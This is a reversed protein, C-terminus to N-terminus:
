QMEKLTMEAELITMGENHTYVPASEWHEILRFSHTTTMHWDPDTFFLHLPEYSDKTRNLIHVHFTNNYVDTVNALTGNGNIANIHLREIIEICENIKYDCMEGKLEYSDNVVKMVGGVILHRHLETDLVPAKNDQDNTIITRQLIWTSSFEAAATASATVLLFALVIKKM